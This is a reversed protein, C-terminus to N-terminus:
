TAYEEVRARVCKNYFLRVARGGKDVGFFSEKLAVTEM